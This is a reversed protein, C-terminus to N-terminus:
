TDIAQAPRVAGCPPRGIRHALRIRGGVAPEVARKERPPGLFLGGGGGGKKPQGRCVALLM